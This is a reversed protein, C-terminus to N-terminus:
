AGGETIQPNKQKMVIFAFRLLSFFL